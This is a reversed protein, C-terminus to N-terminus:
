QAPAPWGGAPAPGSNAQSHDVIKGVVPYKMEYKDAWEKLTTKESNTLDDIDFRTGKLDMKALGRSADTGAFGLYLLLEGIGIRVFLKILRHDIAANDWGINHTKETNHSIKRIKRESEERHTLTRAARHSSFPTLSKCGYPGGPGSVGWSWDVNM